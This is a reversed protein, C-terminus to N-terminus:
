RWAEDRQLVDADVTNRADNFHAAVRSRRAEREFEAAAVLRRLGEEVTSRVTQGTVRQAAKVLDEDLEITTRKVPM